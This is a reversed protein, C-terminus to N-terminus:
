HPIFPDGKLKRTYYFIEQCGISPVKSCADLSSLSFREFLLLSLPSLPPPGVGTSGAAAGIIRAVAWDHRPLQPPSFRRGEEDKSNGGARFEVMKCIKALIEEYM